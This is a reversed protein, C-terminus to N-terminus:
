RQLVKVVVVVVVVVAVLTMKELFVLQNATSHNSNVREVVPRNINQEIQEGQENKEEGRTKDRAGRQRKKEKGRERERAAGQLM